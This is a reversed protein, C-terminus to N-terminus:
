DLEFNINVTYAGGKLLASPPADIRGVRRAAAMVSEDMVVNGSSRLVSFNSIRGDAAITIRLTTRFKASGVISTPQDWLGFFRDHILDHYWGYQSPDVAAGVAQAKPM